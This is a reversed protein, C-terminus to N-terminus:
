TAHPQSTPVGKTEIPLWTRGTHGACRCLEAGRNDGAVAERNDAEGGSYVPARCVQILM